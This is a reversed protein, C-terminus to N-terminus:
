TQKIVPLLLTVLTQHRLVEKVAVSAFLKQQLTVKRGVAQVPQSFSKGFHLLIIRAEALTKAAAGQERLLEGFRRKGAAVLFLPIGDHIEEALTENRANERM